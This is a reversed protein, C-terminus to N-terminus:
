NEAGVALFMGILIFFLALFSVVLLSGAPLFSGTAIFRYGFFLGLVMAVGSVVFGGAMRGRLLLTGSYFAIAGAAVGVALSVVSGTRLDALIGGVLVTAGYILATWGALKM